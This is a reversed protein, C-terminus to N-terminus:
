SSINATTLSSRAFYTLRLETPTPPGFPFQPCDPLHNTSVCRYSQCIRRAIVPLIYFLVLMFNALVRHKEANDPHLRSSLSMVTKVVVSIAKGLVLCLLPTVCEIVLADLHDFTSEYLCDFPVFQVIDLDLFEFFSHTPCTTIPPTTLQRAVSILNPSNRAGSM